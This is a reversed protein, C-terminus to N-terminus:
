GLSGVLFLGAPFLLHLRQILNTHLATPLCCLPLSSSPLALLSTVSSIVRPQLLDTDLADSSAIGGSAIGGSLHEGIVSGAVPFLTDRGDAICLQSLNAMITRADTGVGIVKVLLRQELGHSATSFRPCRHARDMIAIVRCRGKERRSDGVNGVM